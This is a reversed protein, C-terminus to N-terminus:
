EIHHDPVAQLDEEEKTPLFSQCSLLHLDRLGHQKQHEHLYAASIMERIRSVTRDFAFNNDAFATGGPSRFVEGGADAAAGGADADAAAGGADAAAVADAGRPLAAQGARGSFLFEDGATPAPINFNKAHAVLTERIDDLHLSSAEPADSGRPNLAEFLAKARGKGIKLLKAAAACFQAQSLRRTPAGSLEHLRQIADDLREFENWLQEYLQALELAKAPSGFLRFAPLSADFVVRVKQEYLIDILNIFRRVSNPMNEMDELPPVDSLLITHVFRCISLYDEAGLPKHCLDAFSFCALGLQSSGSSCLSSPPPPSSSSSPPPPSSSFSEPAAPKPPGFWIAPLQLKRGPAAEICVSTMPACGQASALAVAHRRVTAPPRPPVWFARCEFSFSKALRFDQNTELHLVQVHEKLFDIFPLFRSRNLGGLYLECPPRNSTSVVVMGLAFLNEFLRKLIMADAIHTVQFEDLCLVAAKARLDKAVRLLPDDAQLPASSNKLQHLRHNVDVMFEHFHVRLKNPLPLLHFFCDMIM